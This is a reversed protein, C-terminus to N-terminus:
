WTLFTAPNGRNMAQLKRPKASILDAELTRRYLTTPCLPVRCERNRERCYCTFYQYACQRCLVLFVKWPSYMKTADYTTRRVYIRM